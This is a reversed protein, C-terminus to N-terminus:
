WLQMRSFDGKTQTRVFLSFSKRFKTIRKFPSGPLKSDDILIEKIQTRVLLPFQNELHQFENLLILQFGPFKSDDILDGKTKTRV